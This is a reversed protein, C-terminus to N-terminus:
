VNININATSRNGCPTAIVTMNYQTNVNYLMVLQVSTSTTFRTHVAEPITAGSYTEGSFQPWELTLTFSDNGFFIMDPRIVVGPTNPFDINVAFMSKKSTM